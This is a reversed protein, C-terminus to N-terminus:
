SWALRAMELATYWARVLRLCGRCASASIAAWSVWIMRSPHARDVALPQGCPPRGARERISGHPRLHIVLQRADLGVVRGPVDPPRLCAAPPRGAEPVGPGGVAPSAPFRTGPLM